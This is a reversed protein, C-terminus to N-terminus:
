EGAGEEKPASESWYGWDERAQIKRRMRRIVAQKIQFIRQRSLEMKIATESGNNGEALLLIVNQEQPTALAGIMSKFSIAQDIEAEEDRAPVFASLPENSDKFAPADLPITETEFRYGKSALHHMFNRAVTKVYTTVLTAAKAKSPHHPYYHELANLVAFKSDAEMEEFDERSLIHRYGKIVSYIVGSYERLAASQERPTM